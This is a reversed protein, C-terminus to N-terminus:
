LARSTIKPSTLLWELTHSSTCHDSKHKVFIVGATLSPCQSYFAFHCHRSPPSGNSAQLSTSPSCPWQHIRLRIIICYLAPLIQRYIANHTHTLPSKQLQFFQSKSLHSSQSLFLNPKSYSPLPIVLEIFSSLWDDSDLHRTPTTNVFGSNFPSLWASYKANLIKKM